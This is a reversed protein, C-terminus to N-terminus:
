KQNQAIKKILKHVYQDWGYSHNELSEKNIFGHHDIKIKCGDQHPEFRVTVTTPEDNGEWKWRYKLKENTRIEIFRGNMVSQKDGMKSILVFKGGEWLEVEISEVPPIAMKESVWAEFMVKPSFPSTYSKTINM